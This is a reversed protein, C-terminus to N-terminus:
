GENREKIYSIIGMALGFIGNWILSTKIDTKLFKFATGMLRDIGFGIGFWMLASSLGVAAPPMNEIKKLFEDTKKNKLNNTSSNQAPLAPATQKSSVRSFSSFESFAGAPKAPQYNQEATFSPHNCRKSLTINECNIPAVAM